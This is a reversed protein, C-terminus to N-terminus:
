VIESLKELLKSKKSKELCSIMVKVFRSLFEPFIAEEDLERSILAGEGTISQKQM